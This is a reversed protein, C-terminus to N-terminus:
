SFVRPLQNGLSAPVVMDMAMDVTLVGLFEGSNGLVPLAALHSRLVEYAALRAPQDAPIANIYPTAIDNLCQKPDSAAILQASTLMGVLEQRANLLYLYHYFRPPNQAFARRAGEVTTDAPLALVDNTMRGAALHSPFRLLKLLRLRQEFEVQALAHQSEEVGLRALVECALDPSMLSLIASRRAPSLEGFIQLQREPQLAQFVGTATNEDLLLLLEAAELYSVSDTLAAIDGPPLRCIKGQYGGERTVLEPRGRVFDVYKWDLRNAEPGRGGLRGGSLRRLLARVGTDVAALRWIEGDPKLVLDNARTGRRNKLDLVMGDLLDRKLLVCPKSLQCPNQPPRLPGYWSYARGDDLLVCRIAPYDDEDLPDFALDRIRQGTPIKRNLISSLFNM